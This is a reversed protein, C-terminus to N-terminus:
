AAEQEALEQRWRAQLAQLDNEFANSM